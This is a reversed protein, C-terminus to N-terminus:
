HSKSYKPVCFSNGWIDASTCPKPHRGDVATCREGAAPTRFGGLFSGATSLAPLNGRVGSHPNSHNPFHSRPHASGNSATSSAGPPCCCSPKSTSIITSLLLQPSPEDNLTATAPQTRHHSADTRAHDGGTRLWRQGLNDSPRRLVAITTM